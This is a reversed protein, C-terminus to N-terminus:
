KKSKKPKVFIDRFTDGTPNILNNQIQIKRKKKQAVAVGDSDSSAAQRVTEKLIAATTPDGEKIVEQIESQAQSTTSEVPSVLEVKVEEENKEECKMPKATTIKTLEGNRAHPTCYSPCSSVSSNSYTVINTSNRTRKG